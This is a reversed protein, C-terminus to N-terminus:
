GVMFRANEREVIKDTSRQVASGACASHTRRTVSPMMPVRMVTSTQASSAALPLWAM